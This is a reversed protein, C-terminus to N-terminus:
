HVIALFYNQGDYSKYVQGTTLGAGIATTEDAYTPVNSITVLQTVDDITIKTKNGSGGTDGITTTGNPTSLEVTGAGANIAIQTTDSSGIVANATHVYTTNNSGRIRLYAKNSIEDVDGIKVDRNGGDLTMIKGITSSGPIVDFTWNDSLTHGTGTDFNTLVDNSISTSNPTKCLINAGSNTGDTWSYTDQQGLDSDLTATTSSTGGTIVDFQLFTGTVSSLVLNEYSNDSNLNIADITASGGSSSTVTEGIQFGSGSISVTPFSVYDKNIGDITISYSVTSLGSFSSPDITINDAGSGTFVPTTNVPAVTYKFGNATIKSNPDDLKFWTHNLSNGIDGAQFVKTTNNWIFDSSAGFAGANNYQIWTNSGAPSGGGGATEWSLNGSGDTTLVQSADGNNAPFTYDIGRITFLDTLPNYKFNTTGKTLTLATGTYVPIQNVAQTGSTQQRMYIGTATFVINSTGITPNNTQQGYPVGKNTTGLAATVVLDDLEATTDAETVRTLVYKVSASGLTTVVYVGNQLQASQNKVLLYDGVQPAIGDQSALAGNTGRTLTAGVGSSGNNYVPAGALAATTAMRVALDSSTPVAAGTWSVTIDSGSSNVSIGTGGLVNLAGTLSNLSTVGGGGGGCGNCGAVNIIANGRGNGSNTYLEGNSGKIWFSNTVDASAIYTATLSLVFSLLITLGISKLIKKM